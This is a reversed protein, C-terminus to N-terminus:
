APAKERVEVDFTTGRAYSAGLNVLDVGAVKLMFLEGGEV